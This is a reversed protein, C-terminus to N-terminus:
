MNKYFNDNIFAQPNSYVAKAEIQQNMGQKYSYGYNNNFVASNKDFLISYPKDLEFLVYAGKRVEFGNSIYSKNKIYIFGDREIISSKDISPNLIGENYSTNVKSEDIKTEAPVENDKSIVQLIKVYSIPVYINDIEPMVISKIILGDNTIIGYDIVAGKQFYVTGNIKKIKNTETEDFGLKEEIATVTKDKGFMKLLLYVGLVGASIKFITKM